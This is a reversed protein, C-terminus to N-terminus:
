KRDASYKGPGLLIISVFVILYLLPLEKRQFPDSAHVIFFAVAMTAATPIAAWRTKFGFIVLIPCVFEGITALFLSPTAGLGLPDGFEDGNILMQLKGYGHTMMTVSAGIRLLLLGVDRLVANPM